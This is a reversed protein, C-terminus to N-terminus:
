NLSRKVMPSFYTAGEADPLRGIRVWGHDLEGDGGAFTVVVDNDQNWITFRTTGDNSFVMEYPLWVGRPAKAPDDEFWYAGEPADNTPIYQLAANGYKIWMMVEYRPEFYREETVPGFQLSFYYGDEFRIYGSIVDGREWVRNQNMIYGPNQLKLSYTTEGYTPSEVSIGVTESDFHVWEELSAPTWPEWYDIPQDEFEERIEDYKPGVCEQMFLNYGSLNADHRRNHENAERRWTEKESEPLNSYQVDCSCWAERFAQQYDTHRDHREGKSRLITGEGTGSLQWCLDLGWDQEQKKWLRNMAGSQTEVLDHKTVKVM